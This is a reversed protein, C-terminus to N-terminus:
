IKAVSPCPHVRIFCNQKDTDMRTFGHSEAKGTM